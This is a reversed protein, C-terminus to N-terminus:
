FILSKISVINQLNGKSQVQELFWEPDRVLSPTFIELVGSSAKSVVPSLPASQSIFSSSALLTDFNTLQDLLEHDM